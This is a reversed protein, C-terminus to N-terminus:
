RWILQAILRGLWVAPLALLIHGGLNALALLREKDRALNITENGFSSYTTYGGLIGIIVFARGQPGLLGIDEIMQSLLGIVFCGSVNVFLTGYPFTASDFISQVYGGVLYRLIAGVFGGAGVFLIRDM